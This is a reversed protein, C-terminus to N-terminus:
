IDVPFPISLDESIEESPEFTTPSENKKPPVVPTERPKETVTAGSSAQADVSSNTKATSVSDQALVNSAALWGLLFCKILYDRKPHRNKSCRNLKSLTECWVCVWM